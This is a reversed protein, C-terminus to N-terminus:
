LSWEYRKQLVNENRPNNNLFRQLINRAHEREGSIWALEAWELTVQEDNPGLSVATAYAKNAYTYSEAIGIKQFLSYVRALTAWNRYNKDNSTIAQQVNSIALKGYIVIKEDRGEFIHLRSVKITKKLYFDALFRYYIDEQSFRLAQASFDLIEQESESIIAKKFYVFSIVKNTYLFIGIVSTVIIIGVISILLLSAWRKKLSIVFNNDPVRTPILTAIYIGTFLFTLALLTFHIPYLFTFIWLYLVILFLSASGGNKHPNPYFIEQIMSKIGFFLFFTFFVIWLFIGLLGTTILLDKNWPKIIETKLEDQTPHALAYLDQQYQNTNPGSGLLARILGERFTGRTVSLNVIETRQESVSLAKISLSIPISPSILFLYLILV